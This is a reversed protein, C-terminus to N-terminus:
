QFLEESDKDLHPPDCKFYIDRNAYPDKTKYPITGKGRKCCLLQCNPLVRDATVAYIPFGSLELAEIVKWMIPYVKSGTLDTSPYAAIAFALSPKYM